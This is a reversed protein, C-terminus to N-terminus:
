KSSPKGRLLQLQSALSSFVQRAPEVSGLKLGYTSDNQASILILEHSRDFALFYLDFSHIEVISFPGKGTEKAILDSLVKVLNAGGYSVPKWTEKDFALIISSRWKGDVLIPYLQQHTDVLLPQPDDSPVYNKLKAFPVSAIPMPSGLKARDFDKLSGFGMLKATREDLLSPFDALAKIAATSAQRDEGRVEQCLCLVECVCILLCARSLLVNMRMAESRRMSEVPM